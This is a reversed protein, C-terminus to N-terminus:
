PLYHRHNLVGRERSKEVRRVASRASRSAQPGARGPRRTSHRHANGYDDDERRLRAGVARYTRVAQGLRARAVDLRVLLEVVEVLTAFLGEGEFEAAQRRVVRRRRGVVHELELAVACIRGVAVPADVAARIDKPEVGIGGRVPEADVGMRMMNSEFVAPEQLEPIITSKGLYPRSNVRNIVIDDQHLAYRAADEDSMRLRQWEGQEVTEGDYFGDIRLIRTGTGYDSKPRYLGNQPGDVIYDGLPKVDWGM